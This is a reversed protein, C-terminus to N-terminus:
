QHKRFVQVYSYTKGGETVSSSEATHVLGAGTVDSILDTAYVPRTRLAHTQGEVLLSFHPHIAAYSPEIDAIILIGGPKMLKAIKMWDPNFPLSSLALALLVVDHKAAGRLDSLFEYVDVTRASVSLRVNRLNREFQAQMARSSDVNLWRGSDSNAFSFAILRGTGGCLDLVSWSSLGQIHNQIKENVMKHTALLLDSNRADYESAIEDYFGTSESTGYTHDYPVAKKSAQREQLFLGGFAIVTMIAPEWSPTALLWAISLLLVIWNAIKLGM